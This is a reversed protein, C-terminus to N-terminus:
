RPNSLTLRCWGVKIQQTMAEIKAHYEEVVNYRRLNFNFAFDAHLEDCTLIFRQFPAYPAKGM